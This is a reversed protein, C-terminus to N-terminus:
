KLYEEVKAAVSESTFGFKEALVKYPASAGFHDMGIMIGEDGTYKCWGFPIGAEVVVRKKMSPPIVSDQYTKDQAEFLERSPMSVVRCSVGKTALIDAAGLATGVESGTAILMVDAKDADKVVYAGKRLQKAKAPNDNVPTLNQRTLALVTPGTKHELATAWAVATEATDAPRIVTVNPIMRLSAIQEIPEHTPGDEGVFISDHTFVYIAQQKMLAALRVAPRLYDCFVLFTGGYPIVGGYVAMGNMISAMAHERVGFHINRGLPNEPSYSGGGKVDTKNSPCLDASGGWLAPVLKAIEQISMGSSARTATPKVCDLNALLTDDLGEPIEKGMVKDWLEKAEPFKSCYASFMSQWEDYDKSVDDAHSAFVDRVEDPVYFPQDVPWGALEKAARVEEEGLPEGHASATGCKNPAGNAITTRAIILSPKDTIAKAKAIAEAAAARDHGDIKQVHWGYAEFRMQVDDSYALATDGEICIHNDDYIVTINGLGLHGALSCAEHSIGEMMDGDGLIVYISHDIVDFGPKNFLAAMRSSAMAMGVANAIGQGLPGTTTEIGKEIEHEPHGPTNSGWQRFQQLDEISFNYGALHLLSYLLMSGHGGSLIFRDRNPWKPDQPNYRLYKTWLVYAYDAAGMPLGPHGSKAKEIGDVALFKITNVCLDDIRTNSIVQSM